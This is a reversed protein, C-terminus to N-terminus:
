NHKKAIVMAGMLAALLVVSVMEFPFLYDNMLVWGVKEVTGFDFTASLAKGGTSVFSQFIIVLEAFFALGLIFTMGRLVDWSKEPKKEDELNLLMVVFLFLVMIAGAYVIIQVIALFEAQLSLYLGAICFFNLVAFLVSYLPNRNTILGIGSAIGILSLVWFLITNLL